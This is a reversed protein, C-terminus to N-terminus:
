MFTENFERMLQDISQIVNDKDEAGDLTKQVIFKIMTLSEVFLNKTSKYKTKLDANEKHLESMRDEYMEKIEKIRTEYMNKLDDISVDSPSSCSPTSDSMPALRLWLSPAISHIQSKGFYKKRV